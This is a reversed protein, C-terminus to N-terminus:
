QGLCGITIQLNLLTSARFGIEEFERSGSRLPSSRVNGIKLSTGLSVFGVLSSDNLGLALQSLATCEIM